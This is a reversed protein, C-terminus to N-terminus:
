ATGAILRRAQEKTVLSGYLASALTKSIRTLLRRRDARPLSAVTAYQVRYAEIEQELRFKPEAIYRQWWAEAGGCREQQAFHVLEHEVVDVPLDVTSPSYITDDYAFVTNANPRFAAKIEAYNPPYGKVIQVTM